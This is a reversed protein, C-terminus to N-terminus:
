QGKWSPFSKLSDALSPIRKAFIPYLVYATLLPNVFIHGISLDKLAEMILPKPPYKGKQIRYKELWGKHDVYFLVANLPVFVLADHYFALLASFTWREGLIPLLRKVAFSYFSTALSPAASVATSLSETSM